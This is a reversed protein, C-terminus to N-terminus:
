ASRPAAAATPKLRRRLRRSAQFAAVAGLVPLPGPAPTGNTLPDAVVGSGGNSIGQVKAAINVFEGQVEIRGLLADPTLNTGTLVFKVTKGKTLRGSGGNQGTGTLNFGLDFDGVANGEIDYGDITAQINYNSCITTGYDDCTVNIPLTGYPNIVGDALNFGVKTIFEDDTLGTLGEISNENPDLLISLPGNLTQQTLEVKM